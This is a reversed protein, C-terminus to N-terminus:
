ESRIFRAKGLEIDIIWFCVCDNREAFLRARADHIHEGEKREEYIDEITISDEEEETLFRYKREKQKSRAFKGRGSFMEKNYLSM